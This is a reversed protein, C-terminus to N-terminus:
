QNGGKDLNEKADMMQLVILEDPDIAVTEILIPKYAHKIEDECEGRTVIHVISGVNKYSVLEIGLKELEEKTVPSKFLIQYKVMNEGLDEANGDKALRGKSLIIFSSCLKELSSMNHSSLIFTRGESRAIIEQRIVELVLPDLGDFAEDLLLVDVNASLAMAIFFQRQMGKSFTSVKRNTPLSLKNMIRNFLEEDMDFLSSYLKFVEGVTTNVPVYPRDSLFFIKKKSEINKNSEGDILITGEDPDYVDSILRLLTSKGAGNEGVLGILGKDITLTFNNVATVKGFRKTLHEIQIM